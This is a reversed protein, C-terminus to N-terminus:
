AKGSMMSSFLLAPFYHHFYLIRGMGWFPVYHLLWGIYLWGCAHLARNQLASCNLKAFFFFVSMLYIKLMIFLLNFRLLLLCYVLNIKDSAVICDKLAFERVAGDVDISSLSLKSNSKTLMSKQRPSAEIGRTNRIAIVAFM